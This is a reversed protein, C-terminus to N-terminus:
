FHKWSDRMTKDPNNERSVLHPYDMNWLFHERLWTIDGGILQMCVHLYNKQSSTVAAGCLQTNDFVKIFFKSPM